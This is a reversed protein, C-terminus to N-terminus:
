DLTSRIDAGREGHRRTLEDFVGVYADAVRSWNFRDLVFERALKGLATREDGRALFDVVAQAQAMADRPPVLTGNSGPIIADSIGEIDAAVVYREAVGAELAVLGLGEMDGAVPVNPMVFLDCARYAAWVLDRPIQGLLRVHTAVGNAEAAALIRPREPGEGVVVYLVSPRRRVIEPLAAEVFWAVGKRAVLRGTTLLVDRGDLDIGSATKLRSRAQERSPLDSPGPDVGYPIVQCREPCVGRRLCEDATSQSIAIVRDVRRLFPLVVAQFLPHPYTVDLGHATSVVPAGILRGLIVGLPALVPDGVHIVDIRGRARIAAVRPFVTLAFWPLLRQSRGWAVIAGPRRRTVETTLHFSAQQMGGVSPPYKRTLFLIV